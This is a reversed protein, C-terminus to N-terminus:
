SKPCCFTTPFGWITIWVSRDRDLLGFIDMWFFFSNIYRRLVFFSHFFGAQGYFYHTKGHFIISREMIIYVNVLPYPTQGACKKPKVLFFHNRSHLFMKSTVHAPGLHQPWHDFWMLLLLPPHYLWCFPLSVTVKLFSIFWLIGWSFHYYTYQQSLKGKRSKGKLHSPKSMRRFGSRSWLIYRECTYYVAHIHRYIYMCTYLLIYIVRIIYMWYQVVNICFSWAGCSSRLAVMSSRQITTEGRFHINDNDADDYWCCCFVVVVDPWRWGWRPGFM